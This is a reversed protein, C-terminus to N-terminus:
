SSSALVREWLDVDSVLMGSLKNIIRNYDSTMESLTGSGRISELLEAIGASAEQPFKMIKGTMIELLDTTDISLLRDNINAYSPAFRKYSTKRAEYRDRVKKVAYNDWWGFGLNRTM